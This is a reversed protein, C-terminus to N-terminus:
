LEKEIITSKDLRKKELTLKKSAERKAITAASQIMGTRQASMKAKSEESRKGGRRAAAGKEISEPSKPIGRQYPKPKGLQWASQKKKTADSVVNGNSGGGTMNYGKPHVCDYEKIWHIERENLQAQDCIELVFFNFNEIGDDKIAKQISSSKKGPTVHASWRRVIDISQGVYAMGTTKNQICYIGCYKKVWFDTKGM